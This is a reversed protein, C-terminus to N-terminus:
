TAGARGSPRSSARDGPSAGQRVASTHDDQGQPRRGGSDVAPAQSTRADCDERQSAPLGVRGANGNEPLELPCDFTRYVRGTSRVRIIYHGRSRAGNGCAVDIMRQKALWRISIALRCPDIPMVPLLQVCIEELQPLEEDDRVVLWEYFVSAARTTWSHSSTM